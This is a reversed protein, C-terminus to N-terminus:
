DPPCRHGNACWGPWCAAPVSSGPYHWRPGPPKIRERPTVWAESPSHSAKGWSSSMEGQRWDRQRSVGGAIRSSESLDELFSADGDIDGDMGPLFGVHGRSPTELVPSVMKDTGLALHQLLGSDGGSRCSGTRPAVSPSGPKDPSPLTGAVWDSVGTGPASWRNGAAGRPGPFSDSELRGAPSSGADPPQRPFIRMMLGVPTPSIAALPTTSSGARSFDPTSQSPNMAEM